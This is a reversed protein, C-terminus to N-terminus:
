PKLFVKCNRMTARSMATSTHLQGKVDCCAPLLSHAHGSSSAQAVKLIVEQQGAKALWAGGRLPWAAMMLASLQAHLYSGTSPMESEFRLVLFLCFFLLFLPLLPLPSPLVLFYSPPSAIDTVFFGVLLCGPFCFCYM